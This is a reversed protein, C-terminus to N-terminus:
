NAMISTLSMTLASSIGTDVAHTGMSRELFLEMVWYVPRLHLADAGMNYVGLYILLMTGLLAAVFLVVNTKLTHISAVM